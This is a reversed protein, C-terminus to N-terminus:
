PIYTLEHFEVCSICNRESCDPNKSMLRVKLLKRGRKQENTQNGHSNPTPCLSSPALSDLLTVCFYCIERNRNTCIKIIMAHCGPMSGFYREIGTMALWHCISRYQDVNPEIGHTQNANIPVPCHNLSDQRNCVSKTVVWDNNVQAGGEKRQCVTILSAHSFEIM